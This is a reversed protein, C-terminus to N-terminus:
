CGGKKPKTQKREGCIKWARGSTRRSELSRKHGWWFDEAEDREGASSKENVNVSKNMESIKKFYSSTESSDSSVNDLGSNTGALVPKLIKFWTPDERGTWGSGTKKDTVKKWKQKM